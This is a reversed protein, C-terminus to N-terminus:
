KTNNTRRKCKNYTDTVKDVKDMNDLTSSFVSVVFLSAFTHANIPITSFQNVTIFDVSQKNVAYNIKVLEIYNM